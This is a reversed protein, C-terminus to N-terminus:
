NESLVLVERRARVMALAIEAALRLAKENVASSERPHQMTLAHAFYLDFATREEASMKVM